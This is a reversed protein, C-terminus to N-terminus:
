FYLKKYFLKSSLLLVHINFNNYKLKIKKGFTVEPSFKERNEKVRMEVTVRPLTERESLYIVDIFIDNFKVCFKFFVM